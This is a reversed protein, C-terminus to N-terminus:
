KKLWDFLQNLTTRNVYKKMYRLRNELPPFYSKPVPPMLDERMVYQNDFRDFTLESADVIRKKWIEDVSASRSVFQSVTQQIDVRDGLATHGDSVLEAEHHFVAPAQDSAAAELRTMIRQQMQQPSRYQFHKLRIRKPYIAGFYPWSRVQDQVNWVMKDDYRFFRNESWDNAYFRCKQEVPVDDAFAAPDQEFKELDRDTFYYQFSAAWVAQYQEPVNSLFSRPNDIYFEDADLKCWWDGPQSRDRFGYFVEGRMSDFYARADRKYPIIKPYDKSLAQVIEWTDDSSNNDVVYIYDSWDVAKMLTQEIIDGENKAICISHIKM